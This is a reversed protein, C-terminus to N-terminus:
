KKIFFRVWVSLCCLHLSSIHMNEKILENAVIWINNNSKNNWQFPTHNEKRKKVNSLANNNSKIISDESWKIKRRRQMSKAIEKRRKKQKNIKVLNQHETDMHYTRARYLVNWLLLLLLVFICIFFINTEWCREYNARESALESSRRTLKEWRKKIKAKIKDYAHIHQTHLANAHFRVNLLSSFVTVIFHVIPFTTQTHACLNFINIPIIIAINSHVFDVYICVHQIYAYWLYM